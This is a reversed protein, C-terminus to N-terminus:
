TNSTRVRLGKLQDEYSGILSFRIDLFPVVIDRAPIPHKRPIWIDYCHPTIVSLEIMFAALDLQHVRVASWRADFNSSYLHLLPVM